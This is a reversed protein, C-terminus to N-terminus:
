GSEVLQDVSGRSVILDDSEAEPDDDIQEEIEEDIIM